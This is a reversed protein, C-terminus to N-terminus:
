RPDPLLDDALRSLGSYLSSFLAPIPVDLAGLVAGTVLAIVMGLALAALLLRPACGGINVGFGGSV